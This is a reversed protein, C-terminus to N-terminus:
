IHVRLTILYSILSNCTFFPQLFQHIIRLKKDFLTMSFILGNELLLANELLRAPLSGAFFYFRLAEILSYVTHTELFIEDNEYM